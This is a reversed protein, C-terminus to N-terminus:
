AHSMLHFSFAFAFAFVMIIGINCGPRLVNYENAKHIGIGCPRHDVSYSTKFCIFDYNIYIIIKLTVNISKHQSNSFQIFHRLYHWKSIPSASVTKFRDALTHLLTWEIWCIILKWFSSWDIRELFMQFFIISKRNLQQWKDSMKIAKSSSFHSCRGDSSMIKSILSVHINSAWSFLFASTRLM